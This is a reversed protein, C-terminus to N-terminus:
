GNGAGGQETNTKPPWESGLLEPPLEKPDSPYFLSLDPKEGQPIEDDPAGIILWTVETENDNFIQRMQEPWVHIAEHRQITHTRGDVRIRGVGDLVIYFEESSIHRHLTNASQPPLRWIRAGMVESGTRELYDANPIKMLNSERWQLSDSHILTEMKM